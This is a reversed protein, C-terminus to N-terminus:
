FRKPVRPWYERKRRNYGGRIFKWRVTHGCDACLGNVQQANSKREPSPMVVGFYGGCKPCTRDLYLAMIRSRYRRLQNPTLAM